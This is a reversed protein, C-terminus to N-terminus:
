KRLEAVELAALLSMAGGRDDFGFVAPREYYYRLNPGAGTGTCVDALGGDETIRAFLGSWTRDVMLNWYEPSVLRNVM